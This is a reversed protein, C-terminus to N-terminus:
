FKQNSFNDEHEVMTPGNTSVPYSLIDLVIEIFVPQFFLLVVRKHFVTNAFVFRLKPCEELNSM